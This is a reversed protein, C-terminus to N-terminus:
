SAFSSRRNTISGSARTRDSEGFNELVGPEAAPRAGQEKTLGRTPNGGHCDTCGLVVNPSTHMDKSARTANSAGASKADGRSANSRDLQTARRSTQNPRCITASRFDASRLRREGVCGHARCASRVDCRGVCRHPASAAVESSDRNRM